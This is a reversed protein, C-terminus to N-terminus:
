QYNTLRGPMIESHIAKLSFAPNYETLSDMDWRLYEIGKNQALLKKREAESAPIPKAYERFIKEYSRKKDKQAFQKFEEASWKVMENYEDTSTGVFNSDKQLAWNSFSFLIIGDEKLYYDSIKHFLKATKVTMVNSAYGYLAVKKGTIQEVVQPILGWAITCDGILLIDISKPKENFLTNVKYNNPGWVFPERGKQAWAMKAFSLDLNNKKAIDAFAEYLPNQFKVEQLTNKEQATCGQLLLLSLLSAMLLIKFQKKM